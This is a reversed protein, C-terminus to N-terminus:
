DSATDAHLVAGSVNDRKKLRVATGSENVVFTGTSAIVNNYLFEDQALGIGASNYYYIASTTPNIFHNGGIMNNQAYDPTQHTQITIVNTGSIFTNNIFKSANIGKAGGQTQAYIAQRASGNTLDFLNNSIVTHSARWIFIEATSGTNESFRNYDIYLSNTSNILIMCLGGTTNAHFKNGTIRAYKTAQTVIDIVRPSGGTLINRQFTGNQVTANNGEIQLLGSTANTTNTSKEIIFSEFIAHEGQVVIFGTTNISLDQAHFRGGTWRGQLRIINETGPDARRFIAGMDAVVAVYSPINITYTAIYVGERVYITGGGNAAQVSTVAFDFAQHTNGIIDVGQTSSTGIIVRSPKSASTVFANMRVDATSSYNAFATFTSIIATTLASQTSNVGTYLDDIDVATTSLDAQLEDIRVGVTTGFNLGKTQLADSTSQFAHFGADKVDSTTRFNVFATQQTDSTSQFAHFNVDKTDSTSRFNIFKIQQADSTSQFAHFGADKVDSTTRFNVFATQQADSTSQFAHFSVDKTDSTSRFNVFKTQQADSTSQYANFNDNKVDGTTNFNMFATQQTDSTSRFNVFKTQQADSTSSFGSFATYTSNVVSAITNDIASTSLNYLKSGDGVFGTTSTVAGVVTMSGINVLPASAFRVVGGNAEILIDSGGVASSRIAFFNNGFDKMLVFNTTGNDLFALQAMRQGSGQTNHIILGSQNTSGGHRIILQEMAGIHSSRVVSNGDILRNSIAVDTTSNHSNFDSRLTTTDTAVASAVTGTATAIVSYITTTATNLSTIDTKINAVTAAIVDFNANMKADYRRTVDVLGTTPKLLQMPGSTLTDGYTHSFGILIFPIFLYRKM